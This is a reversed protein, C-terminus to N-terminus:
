PDLPPFVPVVGSRPFRSGDGLQGNNNDGWCVPRGGTRLACSHDRGLSLQTADHLGIVDVPSPRETTSGDGLQGFRNDGWCAVSGDGRRACTFTAGAAIEVVGILGSVQTPVIADDFSGIGLEGYRNRGWCWVTRDSRLACTHGGGAAIADVLTLGSVEVPLLRQTRSGDGLQGLGNGGWCRIVGTALLACTHSGGAAISVVGSSLGSVPFATTRITTTGDGIQGSSNNGWCRVGGSATLACTHTSGAVLSDTATMLGAVAPGALGRNTTSGDGLQGTANRGWCRVVGSSDAVCTHMSGSAVAQIDAVAPTVIARERTVSTGDGLQMSTNNGWCAVSGDERAVCTHSEGVSIATADNCTRRDCHWQCSVGCSGCYAISGLDAECGNVFERDCDAYGPECEGVACAGVACLVTAARDAAGCAGAAATGDPVGDCDNDLGDCLESTPGVAGECPGWEGGLCRQTGASCEGTDVGGPCPRTMQGMCSSAPADAPGADRVAGDGADTEFTWGDLSTIASCGCALISALILSHRM